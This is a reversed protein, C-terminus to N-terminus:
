NNELVSILNDLKSLLEDYTIITVATLASRFLEFSSLMDEDAVLEETSGIILICTPNLANKNKKEVLEYESLLSQKYTLLQNIGGSLEDSVVYVGNRYRKGLLETFPTKIEILAINHTAENEYLFDAIHGETNDIEKGGVYAKAQYLTFPSQFLLSILWQNEKFFKQWEEEQNTGLLLKFKDRAIKLRNLNLSTQINSLKQTLSESPDEILMGSLLEIIEVIDENTFNGSSKFDKLRQLLEKTGYDLRIYRAFGMPIRDVSAYLDYRNKLGEYLRKTEDPSLAIEMADGVRIDKKSISQTPFKEAKKQKREHILKGSVCCEPNKDNQILDPVFSTRVMDTEKLVILNTKYTNQSSSETVIIDDNSYIM